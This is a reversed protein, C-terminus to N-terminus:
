PAPERYLDLGAFLVEAVTDLPLAHPELVMRGMAEDLREEHSYGMAWGPFLRRGDPAPQPPWERLMTHRADARIDTMLADLAQPPGELLQAFHEGSFCLLGTVDLGANRQTAVAIIRRPEPGCPDIRARSVYILRHLFTAAM